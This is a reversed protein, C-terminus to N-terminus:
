ATEGGEALGVARQLHIETQPAHGTGDEGFCGFAAREIEEERQGPLRCRGQAELSLPWMLDDRARCVAAPERCGVNGPEFDLILERSVDEKSIDSLIESLHSVRQAIWPGTILQDGTRPDLDSSCVDSSWDRSFRTHRRRSSFFFFFSICM